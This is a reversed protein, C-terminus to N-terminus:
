SQCELAARLTEIALQAGHLKHPPLGELFEILSGTTMARCETVSKGPCLSALAAGCALAAACGQAQFRLDRVGDGEVLLSLELVDGCIPNERRASHTAGALVGRGPLEAVLRRVKTSYTM